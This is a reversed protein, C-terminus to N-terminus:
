KLAEDIAAKWETREFLNDGEAPDQDQVKVMAMIMEDNPERMAEIAVVAEKEWCKWALMDCHYRSGSPEDDCHCLYDPDADDKRCLARAVREIMESM